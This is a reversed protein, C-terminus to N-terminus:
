VCVGPVAQTPVQPDPAPTYLLKSNLASSTSGRQAPSVMPSYFPSNKGQTHTHTHPMCISIWLTHTDPISISLHLAHTHTRAHTGTQHSLQQRSAVARTHPLEHVGCGRLLQCAHGRPLSRARERDHVAAGHHDTQTHTHEYSFM